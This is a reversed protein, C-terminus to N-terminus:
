GINRFCVTIIIQEGSKGGGGFNYTSLATRSDAGLFFCVAGPFFLSDGLFDAVVPFLLWCFCRFGILLSVDSDLDLDRDGSNGLDSIRGNLPDCLLDRNGPLDGVGGEILCDGLDGVGGEILCDGLDGIGGEILCDGLDGVGGEILCDCLDGVGGEILCDGLDGVGGEILCDGLDGVGGELLCDRLDGVGGELLCDRLDGVGGELLCDRLDGVGGELLCARLDGVGDDLDNSDKPTLCFSDELFLVADLWCDISSDNDEISVSFSLSLDVDEFLNGIGSPRLYARFIFTFSNLLIWRPQNM